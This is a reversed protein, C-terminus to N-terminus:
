AAQYKTSHLSSAAAIYGVISLAIFSGIVITATLSLSTVSLLTGTALAGVPKGLGGLAFRVSTVRGLLREPVLRAFLAPWVTSVLSIALGILASVIFAFVLSNTTCLMWIGILPGVCGFLTWRAAGRNTQGVVLAALTLSAVLEVLVTVTDFLGFGVAGRDTGFRSLWSVGAVLRDVRRPLLLFLVEFGANVSSVALVMGWIARHRLAFDFGERAQAVWARIGIPEGDTGDPHDPFAIFSYAIATVLFTAADIYLVRSAGYAAALIGALIPAVLGATQWTANFLANAQQVRAEGALAPISASLAPLLVGGVFGVLGAVIVVFISPLHATLLTALLSVLVFLTLNAIVLVRRRDWRDLSSGLIVTGVIGGFGQAALISGALAPNERRLFWALAFGSLGTGLSTITEALFMLRLRRDRWLAWM